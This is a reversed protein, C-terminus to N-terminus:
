VHFPFETKSYFMRSASKDYMQKTICITSAKCPTTNNKQLDQKTLRKFVCICADTDEDQIQITWEVTKLVNLRLARNEKTVPIM